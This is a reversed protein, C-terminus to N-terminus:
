GLLALADAAIGEATLGYVRFLDESRGVRYPADSFGKIKLRVGGEGDLAHATMEGLGGCVSHEEITVAAGCLRAAEAVGDGDFPRLSFADMVCTSVGRHALMEAARLAHALTEGCAILAIDHGERLVRAKGPQFAEGDAYVDEVDGRGIRMYAPGDHTALYRTLWRTQAADCPAYIEIGPIARMGAIDHLCTHTTGLPGYSVGASVGIVKVNAKNYAVDIKVQEFARATLFCAPGCVFVNKGTMSLGAAVSVANQEAIGMEVAQAALEDFFATMTVSGRSDTAVAFVRGDSKGAELLADSFAKRCSSMRM